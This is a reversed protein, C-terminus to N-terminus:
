KDLIKICKIELIILNLKRINDIQENMENITAKLIYQKKEVCSQLYWIEWLFKVKNIM